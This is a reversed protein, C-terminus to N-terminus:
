EMTDYRSADFVMPQSGAWIKGRYGQRNEGRQRSSKRLTNARNDDDQEEVLPQKGKANADRYTCHLNSKHHHFLNMEM